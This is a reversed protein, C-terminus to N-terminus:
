RPHHSSSDIIFSDVLETHRLLLEHGSLGQQWLEELAEKRAHLESSM